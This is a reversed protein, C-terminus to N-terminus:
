DTVKRSGNAVLRLIFSKLRLLLNSKSRPLKRQRIYFPLVQDFLGRYLPLTIDQALDISINQDKAILAVEANFHEPLPRSSKLGLLLRESGSESVNQNEPVVSTLYAEEIQEFADLMGLIRQMVTAPLEPATRINVDPLFELDLEEIIEDIAQEGKRLQEIEWFSFEKGIDQGPNLHLSCQDPILWLLAKFDKTIVALDNGSWAAVSEQTTFIPICFRTKSQIVLFDHNQENETEFSTSPPLFVQSQLLTRYFTAIDSKNDSNAAKILAEELLNM